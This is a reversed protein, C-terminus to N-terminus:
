CTLLAPRVGPPYLLRQQRFAQQVCDRLQNEDWPKTFCRHITGGNVAGLVSAFDAHGSLIIRLTDPYLDRVRSLFETGSMEPMCQDSLVVQVSNLALLKLADAASTAALIKYGDPRLARNLARVINPEDDLILLTGQGDDAEGLPLKKNSALLQAFGDAPLARCFLFGQMADCRQRRLYQMQEQTEVGEAIVTLHLNHALDIVAKCIAADDPQTTIDRVFSQDIKLHDVPFRKLYRLSSYGTGFDDLAITVGLAKLEGLTVIAAEVDRLVASETIELELSSAAIGNSELAHRLSRLLDKQQFQRASLNVAITPVHLGAEKWARLQACVSDIAWNGIPLVLGTEEAMRIFEAPAVMGRTPHRWRLLAEAGTIAGTVLSCRAQYHMILEGREIAHGLEAELAFRAAMRANMDASFFRLTNGGRRKADQMALGANRLLAAIDDADDPLLSVGVSATVRVPPAGHPLPEGLLAVMKTAIAGAAAVDLVPLLVAFEDAGLRAVTAGEGAVGELRQAVQVLVQDGASQGHAENVAKFGDLNIFLAALTKHAKSARAAHQALRTELTRRNPLGTLTDYNVHHALQDEARQREASQRRSVIGFALDESLDQLLTLEDGEFLHAQDSYIGLVGLPVDGDLLPLAICSVLMPPPAIGRWSAFVIDEALRNSVLTRRQQIASGFGGQRAVDAGWSLRLDGVYGREEGAHAALEVDHGDDDRAYGVWVCRYGGIEVLHRCITELLATEDGAKVLARSCASRLTWARDVRELREAQAVEREAAIRTEDAILNMSKVLVDFESASDTEDMRGARAGPRAASGGHRFNGDAIAGAFAICDRLTRDIARTINMALAVGGAMALLPVLLLVGLVTRQQSAVRQRAQGALLEAKEGIQILLPELPKDAKDKEYEYTLLSVAQATDRLTSDGSLAAIEYMNKRIAVLANHRAARDGGVAPLATRSALSLEVIRTDQDLLGQYAWNIYLHCAGAALAALLMPVALAAVAAHLRARLSLRGLGAFLEPSTSM